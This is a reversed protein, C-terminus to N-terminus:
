RTIKAGQRGDKVLILTVVGLAFTSEPLPRNVGSRANQDRGVILATVGDVGGFNEPAADCLTNGTEIVRGLITGGACERDFETPRHAPIGQGIYYALEPRIDRRVHEVTVCPLLVM